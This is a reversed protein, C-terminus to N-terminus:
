KKRKRNLKVNKNGKRRQQKKEFEKTLNRPASPGAFYQQGHLRVLNELADKKAYVARVAGQVMNLQYEAKTVRQKAEQYKDTMKMAGDIASETTKPLNYKEPNNCIEEYLEAEVVDLNQKAEDVKRRAKAEMQCYKVTLDPHQLWEVDLAEEDIHVDEKYNLESM